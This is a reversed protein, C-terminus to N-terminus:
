TYTRLAKEVSRFIFYKEALVKDVQEPNFKLLQHRFLDNSLEAHINDYLNRWGIAEKNDQLVFGFADESLFGNGYLTTNYNFYNMEPSCLFEVLEIVENSLRVKWGDISQTYIGQEPVNFNSYKVWKDGVIPRFKETELMISNFGIGLFDCVERLENEPNLCLDEYRIVKVKESYIPNNIYEIAYAMHKRLHRVFSYILPVLKPNKKKLGLSSAVAGRPDRIIVIFKAEPFIKVLLPLFEIVWNDNAGVYAQEKEYAIELVSHLKYFLDTYTINEETLLDDVYKLLERSALGMRDYLSSKLYPKAKSPIFVSPNFNEVLQKEKIQDLSYYYDNLPVSIDYTGKTFDLMVHNRIQSYIPLFPDSAMKVKSNLSMMRAFFTTGGRSTGFSFLQKTM